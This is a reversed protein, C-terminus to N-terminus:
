VLALQQQYFAPQKEKLNLLREASWGTMELLKREQSTLENGKGEGPDSANESSSGRYPVPNDSSEPKEGRNMFEHVEKFRSTFEDVSKLGNLNFKQMEKEFAAFKIGGPDAAESFEHQSARFDEIAKERNKQTEKEERDKLVREIQAATDVEGAPKEEDNNKTELAEELKAEVERKKTRLETLEGVTATKDKEAQELDGDKQKLIEILEEPSKGEYETEM